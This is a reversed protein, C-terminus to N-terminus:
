CTIGCTEEREQNVVATGRIRTSDIVATFSALSSMTLQFRLSWMSAAVCLEWYAIDSCLCSCSRLLIDYRCCVTNERQGTDESYFLCLLSLCTFLRLTSTRMSPCHTMQSVFKVDTLAFVRRTHIQTRHQSKATRRTNTHCVSSPSISSREPRLYLWVPSYRTQWPLYWCAM